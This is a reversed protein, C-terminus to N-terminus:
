LVNKMKVYISPLNYNWHRSNTESMNIWHFVTMKWKVVFGKTWKHFILINGISDDDITTLLPRCSQWPAFNMAPQTRHSHLEEFGAGGSDWLDTRYPLRCNAMSLHLHRTSENAFFTPCVQGHSTGRSKQHWHWPCGPHWVKMTTEWIARFHTKSSFLQVWVSCLESASCRSEQVSLFVGSIMKMLSLHIDGQKPSRLCHPSCVRMIFGAQCTTQGSKEVLPNIPRWRWLPKRAVPTTQRAKFM